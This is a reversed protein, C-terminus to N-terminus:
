IEAALGIKIASIRLTPRKALGFDQSNYTGELLGLSSDEGLYEGEFTGTAQTQDLRYVTNQWSLQLALSETLNLGTGIEGQLLRGTIRRMEVQKFSERTTQDLSLKTFSLGGMLSTYIPTTWLGYSEDLKLRVGVSGTRHDYRSLVKDFDGEVGAPGRSRTNILTNGLAIQPGIALAPGPLGSIHFTKSLTLEFGSAYRISMGDSATGRGVFPGFGLNIGQTSGQRASSQTQSSIGELDSISQAFVGSARCLSHM